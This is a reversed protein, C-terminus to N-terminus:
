SATRAKQRKNPVPPPAPAVPAATACAIRSLAYDAFPKEEPAGQRVERPLRVLSLALQDGFRRWRSLVNDVPYYWTVDFGGGRSAGEGTAAFALGFSDAWTGLIRSPQTADGGLLIHAQYHDLPNAEASTVLDAALLTEPMLTAITLRVAVPRDSLVGIGSWCGALAAAAEPIQSAAHAPTAIALALPLFRINM